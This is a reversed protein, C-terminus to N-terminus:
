ELLFSQKKGPEREKEASKNIKEILKETDYDTFAECYNENCQKFKLTAKEIIALIENDYANYRNRDKTHARIYSILLHIARSNAKRLLKKGAKSEFDMDEEIDEMSDRIYVRLKGKKLGEWRESQKIGSSCSFFIILSLFLHINKNFINMFHIKKLCRLYGRKGRM